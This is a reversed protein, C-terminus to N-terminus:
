SELSAKKKELPFGNTKLGSLLPSQDSKKSGGDPSTKNVSESVIRVLGGAGVGRGAASGSKAVPRPTIPRSPHRLFRFPATATAAAQIRRKSSAALAANRASYSPPLAAGASTM